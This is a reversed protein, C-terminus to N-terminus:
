SREGSLPVPGPSIGYRDAAVALAELQQQESGEPWVERCWVVVDEVGAEALEALRDPTPDLVRLYTRFANTRGSAERLEALRDRCRLMEEIPPGGSVFWGDGYRAARRLARETNGGFVLPVPVGTRCLEVDAFQWHAGAHRVPGGATAAAIIEAGEDLMSMRAQFPVGLADFEESLWGAGIGLVLRGGSLQQVTTAGRATVLPHRLPLIYVGTCLRLRTTRVALAGLLAWPDQLHTESTVTKGGHLRSEAGAESPHVSQYGIPHLVHDGLWIGDFGAAEAAVALDIVDHSALNYVAIGVRM